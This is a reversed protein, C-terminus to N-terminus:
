LGNDGADADAPKDLEAQKDTALKRLTDASANGAYPVSHFDLYSKLLPATKKDIPVDEGEYDPVDVIDPAEAEASERIPKRYHAVGTSKELKTLLDLEDDSLDVVKNAAFRVRREETRDTGEIKVPRSTSLAALLLMRHPYKNTAM